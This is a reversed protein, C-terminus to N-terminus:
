SGGRSIVIAELASALTDIDERTHRESVAVLLCNEMGEYYCGCSIGPWIGAPRLEQKAHEAEFPLEVVFERFFPGEFRLRVGRIRSLADAAYRAKAAVHLALERMGRPGLLSLYVAASLAVLAQNTCVNSTARERRIHQERTQLTMVYGRRGVSDTTAGVLRGPLKRLYERRAAMFGLLPGGFAMPAGLCQGEGVAIDAGYQGPPKLLALSLPDVSAVALGGAQAVRSALEGAPELLGFFNPHEFVMCAAGAALDELAGLDTRGGDAPVEVLEVASGSLYTRLVERTAPNATAAVLVKQRGTASVALFAAEAAASSGDYLSANAVDLGTLRAILTQFEYITQLTGQSAEAQYPTYATSFQPMSTIHRVVSPIHHDYIGGGLFSIVDGATRNMAALSEVHRLLELESLPGPIDLRGQFRLEGPVDGFLEEISTVGIAALMERRDHDTNPVYPL